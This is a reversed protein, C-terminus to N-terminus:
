SVKQEGVDGLSGGLALRFEGGAVEGLAGLHGTEGGRGRSKDVEATQEGNHHTLTQSVLRPAHEVEADLVGVGLALHGTGGLTEDGSQLAVADM